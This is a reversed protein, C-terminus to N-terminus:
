RHDTKKLVLMDISKLCAPWLRLLSKEPLVLQFGPNGSFDNNRIQQKGLFMGLKISFGYLEGPQFFLFQKYPFLPV